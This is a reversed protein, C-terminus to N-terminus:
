EDDKLELYYTCDDDYLGGRKFEESSAWESASRGYLPYQSCMEPRNEYSGCGFGTFHKCTFYKSKSSTHSVLTPNIKKALRRKIPRVMLYTYICDASLQTGDPVGYKQIYRCWLIYNYNVNMILVECCKSCQKGDIVCHKSM